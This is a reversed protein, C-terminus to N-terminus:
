GENGGATALHGAPAAPSDSNSRPSGQRLALIYAGLGFLGTPLNILVRTLVVVAGAESVDVGHASLLSVMVADGAGLGFPLGSAMGAIGSFVLVVWAEQLGITAGTSEVVIWFQLLMIGFTALSLVVFAVALRPSRWLREFAEGAEDLGILRRQIFGPLVGPIRGVPISFWRVLVLPGFMGSLALAAVPAAAWVPLAGSLSLALVGSLTFIGM